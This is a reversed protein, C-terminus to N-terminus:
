WLITPRTPRRMFPNMKTSAEGDGGIGEGGGGQEHPHSERKMRMREENKEVNRFNVKHTDAFERGAHSRKLAEVAM